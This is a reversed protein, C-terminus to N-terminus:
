HAGARASRAHIPEDDGAARPCPTSSSDANFACLGCNSMYIHNTPGSKLGLRRVQMMPLQLDIWAQLECAMCSSMAESCEIMTGLAQAAHLLFCIFCDNLVLVQMWIRQNKLAQVESWLWSAQVGAVQRQARRPGCVTSTYTSPTCALQFHCSCASPCTSLHPLPLHVFSCATLESNLVLLKRYANPHIGARLRFLGRKEGVQLAAGGYRQRADVMRREYGCWM